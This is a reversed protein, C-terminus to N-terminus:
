LRMNTLYPSFEPSETCKEDLLRKRLRSKGNTSKRRREHRRLARDGSNSSVSRTPDAVRLIADRGNGRDIRVKIECKHSTGGGDLVSQTLFM